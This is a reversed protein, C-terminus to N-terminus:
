AALRPDGQLIRLTKWSKPQHAPNPSILLFSESQPGFLLPVIRGSTPRLDIVLEATPMPLLREHRHPPASGDMLWFMDVFDTLPPQPIYTILNM